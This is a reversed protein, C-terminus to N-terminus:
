WQSEIWRFVGNKRCVSAKFMDRALRPSVTLDYRAEPSWDKVTVWNIAFAQSEEVKENLERDLGSLRVLAALDHVFVKSAIAKDPFDYQNVGRAIRAKLGCETAYGAMYYASAFRGARLLVAADRLRELALDQLATRNLTM